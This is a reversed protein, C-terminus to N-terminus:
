PAAAGNLLWAEDEKEFVVPEPPVARIDFEALFSAADLERRPGPFGCWSALLGIVRERPVGRERYHALRSDGHRKALRRGDPGLVLPLHWWNPAEKGLARYVLTQRAASPLLDSGRVVDTVRQRLDDVVVALQYSPVGRKTWLLFDGVEEGPNCVVRGAVRDEVAVPGADVRLRYNALPDTPRYAIPDSPRLDPVFRTEHDGAHPASLAAEVERRTLDCRFVPTSRSLEVLVQWYDGLHDSQVFPEGDYDIGLWEFAAMADRDAGVKVRPSDLDEVRLVLDWGRQRALAWNVLFTRANGLHLAGTPSPALRSTGRSPSDLQGTTPPLSPTM